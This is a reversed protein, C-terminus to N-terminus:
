CPQTLVDIQRRAGLFNRLHERLDAEGDIRHFLAGDNRANDYPADLLQFFM